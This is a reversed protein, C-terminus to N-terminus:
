LNMVLKFLEEGLLSETEIPAVHGQEKFECVLKRFKYVNRERTVMKIIEGYLSDHNLKELLDFVKMEDESLLKLAIMKELRDKPVVGSYALRVMDDFHM